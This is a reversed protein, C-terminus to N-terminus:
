GPQYAVAADGYCMMAEMLKALDTDAQTLLVNDAYSRISYTLTNSVAEEGSYLTMKVVQRMQRANLGDFFSYYGDECAVFNEFSVTGLANGVIDTVKLTLADTSETEIVMRIRVTERLYLAVSRIRAAPDVLTDSVATDPTQAIYDATIWSKWTATMNDTVLADANHGTYVQAAAGYNLINVLLAGFTDATQTESYKKELQNYCYQAVSYSITQGEVTQGNKTAFLTATITDAMWDPRINKLTFIYKDETVSYQGAVHSEVGNLVIVAYPDTYGADVVDANMKFKVDIGNELYLSAGYFELQPTRAVTGTFPQAYGLRFKGPQALQLTINLEQDEAAELVTYELYYSNYAGRYKWVPDSLVAGGATFTEQITFLEAPDGQLEGYCVTWWQGDGGQWILPFNVTDGAKLVTGGNSTDPAGFDAECDFVNGSLNLTIVPRSAALVTGSFTVAASQRYLAPQTLQASIEIANVEKTGAVTYELFWQGSSWTKWGNCTLLTQGATITEQVTFLDAPNGQMEHQYAAYWTNGGLFALPFCITSGAPMNSFDAANSVAPTFGVLCPGTYNPLVFDAVCMEQAAVNGQIRYATSINDTGGTGGGPQTLAVTIDLAAAEAGGKVVIELYYREGYGDDPYTKWVPESILEGGASANVQITFWEEPTGQLEPVRTPYWTTGALFQLDLTIKTGATLVTESGSNIVPNKLDMACMYTTGGLVNYAGPFQVADTTTVTAGGTAASVPMASILLAMIMALVATKKALVLVKQM